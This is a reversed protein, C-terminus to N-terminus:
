LKGRLTQRRKRLQRIKPREAPTIGGRRLKDIRENVGAIQKKIRKPNKAVVTVPTPEMAPSQLQALIDSLVQTQEEEQQQLGAFDVGSSDFSPSTGALSQPSSWDVTDGVTSSPTTPESSLAPAAAAQKKRVYWIIGVTGVGVILWTRTTFPGIKKGLEIKPV